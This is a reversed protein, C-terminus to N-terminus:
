HLGRFLYIEGQPGSAVHVFGLSALVRGANPKSPDAVAALGPRALRKLMERAGKIIAVPFRRMEPKMDSFLYPPAGDQQYAIGAIAIPKGALEAVLARVSRGPIAGYFVALDAATAPRIIPGIM